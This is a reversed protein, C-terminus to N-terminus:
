DNNRRFYWEYLKPAYLLLYMKIVYKKNAAFYSFSEKIERTNEHMIKDIRKQFEKKLKESEKYLGAYTRGMEDWFACIRYQALDTRGLKQLYDIQNRLNPIRDTFFRESLGTSSINGERIDRYYYIAKANFVCKKCKALVELNFPGDEGHIKDIFRCEGILDRSYLKDCASKSIHPKYYGYIFAELIMDKEIVANEIQFIPQKGSQFEINGWAMQANNQVLAEYLNEYMSIDIWDDGDVFGILEGIAHKLGENRASSLGGNEKHVVKIRSDMQSLEDCLMGSKDTSGDDVLIIELNTYTQNVISLVCEEIYQEINYVPVIVSIKKNQNSM